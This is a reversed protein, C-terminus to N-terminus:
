CGPSFFEEVNRKATWRAYALPYDIGKEAYNMDYLGPGWARSVALELEKEYFIKRPINLSVLGSAVIPARERAIEASVEM